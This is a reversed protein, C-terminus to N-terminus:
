VTVSKDSNKINDFSPYVDILTKASKIRNMTTYVTGHGNYNPWRKNYPIPRIKKPPGDLFITSKKNQANYEIKNIKGIWEIAQVPKKVFLAIYKLSIFKERAIPIEGWLNQAILTNKITKPIASTLITDFYPIKFSRGFKVLSLNRVKCQLGINSKKNGIKESIDITNKVIETVYKVAKLGGLASGTFLATTFASEIFNVNQLFPLITNVDISNKGKKIRDIKIYKIEEDNVLNYLLETIKIATEIDSSKLLISLKDVM